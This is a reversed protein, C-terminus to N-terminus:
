GELRTVRPRLPPFAMAVLIVSSHMLQPAHSGSHGLLAIEEPGSMKTMLASSHLSHTPKWSSIAQAATQGTSQQRGSGSRTSVSSASSARDFDM